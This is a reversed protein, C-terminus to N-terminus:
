LPLKWMWRLNHCHQAEPRSDTDAPEPQVLPLLLRINLHITVPLTIEQM